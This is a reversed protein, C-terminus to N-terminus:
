LWTICMIAITLFIFIVGLFAGPDLKLSTYGGGVNGFVAGVAGAFDMGGTGSDEPSVVTTPAITPMLTPDGPPQTYSKTEISSQILVPTDIQQGDDGDYEAGLSNPFSSSALTTLISEELDASSEFSTDSLLVEFRVVWQYTYEDTVGELRRQQQTDDNSAIEFPTVTFYDFSSLTIYDNEAVIANKLAEVDDNRGLSNANM